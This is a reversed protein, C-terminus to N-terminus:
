GLLYSRYIIAACAFHLMALYKLSNKEWRVLMRRFRSTWSHTREVVRSRARYGAERKIAQAEEGGRGCTRRSGSSGSWSGPTTTTM